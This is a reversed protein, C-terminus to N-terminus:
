EVRTVSIADKCIFTYGPGVAGSDPATPDPYVKSPLNGIGSGLIFM